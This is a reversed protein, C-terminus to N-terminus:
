TGFCSIKESFHFYKQFDRLYARRAIRASYKYQIETDVENYIEDALSISVLDYAFIRDIGVERSAVFNTFLM